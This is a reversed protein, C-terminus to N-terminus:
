VKKVIGKGGVLLKISYQQHFNPVLFVVAFLSHVNMAMLCIGEMGLGNNHPQDVPM